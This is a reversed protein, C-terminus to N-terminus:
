WASSLWRAASREVTVSNTRWPSLAWTVRRLSAPVSCTSVTSSLLRCTARPSSTASPSTIPTVRCQAAPGSNHPRHVVRHSDSTEPTSPSNIPRAVPRHRSDFM